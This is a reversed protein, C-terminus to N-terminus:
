EVGSSLVVQRIALSVMGALRRRPATSCKVSGFRAWMTDNRIAEALYDIAAPPMEHFCGTLVVERLGLVNLASAIGVAAADLSRKLWDPIGNEAVQELLSQWSCDLGNERASALIGQRSVLTEVCGTAGCGCRRANGLVPTHGLEGSLPLPGTYLQRNVVIAAGVGSGVDVLLFDSADPDATLHGLALARIEQLFLVEVPLLRRLLARLEAAETWRLNPSLLVRGDREAVVGPLSVIVAEIRAVDFTRLRGALQQTWSPEDSGTEFQTGWQDSQPIALPLVSLRTNHIGIHLALFRPRRRDLVLPISPRGLAAARGSPTVTADTTGASEEAPADTEMLIESALLDDVIRSVTPQSMGAVRALQARSAARLQIVKEVIRRQNM